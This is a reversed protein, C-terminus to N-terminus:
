EHTPPNRREYLYASLMGLGGFIAILGFYTATKAGNQLQLAQTILVALVLGLGAGIFLLADKLTKSPNAEKQKKNAKPDMGREIMAMNEKNELFKLGWVMIFAGLSIIIPMVLAIVGEM